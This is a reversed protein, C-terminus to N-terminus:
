CTNRTPARRARRMQQRAGGTERSQLKRVLPSLLRVRTGQQLEELVVCRNAHVAQKGAKYTDCRETRVHCM